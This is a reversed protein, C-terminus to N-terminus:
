FFNVFDIRFYYAAWVIYDRFNLFKNRRKKICIILSILSIFILILVFGQNIGM